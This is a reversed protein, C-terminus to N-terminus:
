VGGVILLLTLAVLLSLVYGEGELIKFISFLFVFLDNYSQVLHVRISAPLCFPATLKSELTFLFTSNSPM